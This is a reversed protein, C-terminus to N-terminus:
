FVAKIHEFRSLIDTQLDEANNCIIRLGLYDWMNHQQKKQVGNDNLVLKAAFTVKNFALLDYDRKYRYNM